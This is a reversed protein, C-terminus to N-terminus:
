RTEEDHLTNKINSSPLSSKVITDDIYIARTRACKMCLEDDFHCRKSFQKNFSVALICYNSKIEQQLLPSAFRVSSVFKTVDFSPTQWHLKVVSFSCGLLLGFVPAKLQIGTRHQLARYGCNQHWMCFNTAFNKRGIKKGNLLYIQISVVQLCHTKPTGNIKYSKDSAFHM